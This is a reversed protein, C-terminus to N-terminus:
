GLGCEATLPGTYKRWIQTSDLVPIGIFGRLHLDGSGDLWLKAQYTNGDRPDTIQGLWTGDAAPKEGTIIPLGCQSQGHVDTPMPETPARDIGVIRGCLADGCQAIAVVGHGNATSWTGVPSNAPVASAAPSLAVLEFALASACAFLAHSRAHRFMSGTELGCDHEFITASQM